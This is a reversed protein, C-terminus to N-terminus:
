AIAYFIYDSGSQNIPLASTHNVIFGSSSPDIRDHYDQTPSGTPVEADTTNLRLGRAVSTTIGRETDFAWWDGGGNTQKILVFRAGNSFGCDIVRGTTSDGSYSGVKSVGDLSAFLYAIYTHGSANAVSGGNFTIVSDTPATNNWYSGTTEAQSSNLVLFYDEPNTGGNLGKHYVAWAGTTSRRKVWMMEPAVGLNHSVTRGAVGNGTYAVVDFYNPRRQWSYGYYSTDLGADLWGNQYDYVYASNTAEVDTTNTRLFTGQTLRTSIKPDMGATRLLLGMDTVFGSPFQPRDTGTFGARVDFVDTADTPVAMPGRRIAIYIYNRNAGYNDVKFGTPTLIMRNVNSEANTDNAEILASQTIFDAPLGRMNDFLMWSGGTSSDTRKALVWQPEWGLDITADENADTTYSGCKIIDQDGTPGFTGDGDNHAFLYAVYSQSTYMLSSSVTVSTSDVSFAGSLTGAANTDFGLYKDNGTGVHYISWPDATQTNKIVVFAPTAGLDHNFTTNGSSASTFTQVDFFKPAKRFTWSAYEQVSNNVQGDNTNMSFGNANFSYNKSSAGINAVTQNSWLEYTPGRETDLLVHSDVNTRGKIWVLGGEGADAADFPGFGSKSPSGYPTASHSSSSQDAFPDDNQGILLVTNADSSLASTPVTFTATYRATNSVRLNSIRGNFNTANKSYDGILANVSNSFNIGNQSTADTKDLTGNIFWYATGSSRVIAVHNWQNANLTSNSLTNAQGRRGFDLQMQYVEFILGGTVDFGFITRYTTNSDNLWVWAECTFDGTGFNFDSSQAIELGDAQAELSISGGDNSQGLNIENDIIQSSGNGDYLYTSFVQEVNLAGAGGSAAATGAAAQLLKKKTAM